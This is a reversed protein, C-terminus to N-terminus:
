GTSTEAADGRSNQSVAAPRRQETTLHHLRMGNLPSDQELEVLHAEFQAQIEQMQALLARAEALLAEHGDRELRAIIREQETIRQKGDEVHHRARELDTENM